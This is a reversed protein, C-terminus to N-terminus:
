SVAVGLNGARSGQLVLSTVHIVIFNYRICFHNWTPTPKLQLSLPHFPPIGKHQQLSIFVRSGDAYVESGQERGGKTRMTRRNGQSQRWEPNIGEVRPKSGRRSWWREKVRRDTM